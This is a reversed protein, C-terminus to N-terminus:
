ILQVHVITAVMRRPMLATAASAWRFGQQVMVDAVVLGVQRAIAALWPRSM